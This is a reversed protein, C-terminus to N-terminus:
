FIFLIRINKPIIKRFYIAYNLKENFFMNQIDTFRKLQLEYICIVYQSIVNCAYLKTNIILSKFIQRPIIKDITDIEINKLKLYM